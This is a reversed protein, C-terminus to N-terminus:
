KRRRWAYCLLGILATALLALTGPEPISRLQFGDLQPLHDRSAGICNIVQNTDDAIFTGILYQGVGGDGGTNTSAADSTSGGSSLTLTRFNVAERPDTTWAQFLYEQGITLDSLTLTYPGCVWTVPTYQYLQNSLLAKYGPDLNAFPASTSTIGDDTFRNGSGADFTTNGGVTFSSTSPLTMGTFLVNNVTVSPGPHYARDLTGQTNVDSVDSITVPAQWTIISAQVQSAALLAACIAICFVRSM